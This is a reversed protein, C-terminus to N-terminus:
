LIDGQSVQWFVDLMRPFGQPLLYFPVCDKYETEIRYRSIQSLGPIRLYSKWGGHRRWKFFFHNLWWESIGHDDKAQRLHILFQVVPSGDDRRDRGSGSNTDHAGRGFHRPIRWHSCPATFTLSHTAQISKSRIPPAIAQKSTNYVGTSRKTQSGHICCTSISCNCDVFTCMLLYM